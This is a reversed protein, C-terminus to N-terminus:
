WKYKDRDVLYNYAVYYYVILTSSYSILKEFQNILGIQAM